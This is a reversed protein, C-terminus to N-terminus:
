QRSIKYNKWLTEIVAFVIVSLALSLIAFTPIWVPSFVWWWSWDLFGTAKLIVFVITLLGLFGISGSSQTTRENM